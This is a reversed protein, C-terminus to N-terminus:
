LFLAKTTSTIITISPWGSQNQVFLVLQAQPSFHIKQSMWMPIILYTLQSTLLGKYILKVESKSEPLYMYGIRQIWFLYIHIQFLLRNLVSMKLFYSKKDTNTCNQHKQNIQTQIEIKLLM